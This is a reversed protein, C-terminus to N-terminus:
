KKHITKPRNDYAYISAISLVNRKLQRWARPARLLAKGYTEFADYMHYFPFEYKGMVPIKSINNNLKQVPITTNKNYEGVKISSLDLNSNHFIPIKTGKNMKNPLNEKKTSNKRSSNNSDNKVTKNRLETTNKQAKPNLKGEKAESKQSKSKMEARPKKPKVEDNLKSGQSQPNLKIEVKSEQPILKIELKGEQPNPKKNDLPKTTNSIKQEEVKKPSKSDLNLADAVQSHLSPKNSRSKSHRSSSSKKVPEEKPNMSPEKITNLTSPEQNKAAANRLAMSAILSSVRKPHTITKKFVIPAHKKALLSSASLCGKKHNLPIWAVYNMLNRNNFSNFADYLHNLSNLHDYDYKYRTPVRPVSPAILYEDIIDEIKEYDISKLSELSETSLQSDSVSLTRLVEVKIDQDVNNKVPEQMRVPKPPQYKKHVTDIVLHQNREKQNSRNQVPDNRKKKQEQAKIQREQLEKKKRVNSENIIRRDLLPRNKMSIISAFSLTTHGITKYARISSNENSFKHIFGNYVNVLDGLLFINKSTQRNNSRSPPQYTTTRQINLPYKHIRNPVSYASSLRKPSKLPKEVPLIFPKEIQLKQPYSNRSPNIGTKSNTNNVNKVNNNQYIDNSYGNLLYGEELYKM